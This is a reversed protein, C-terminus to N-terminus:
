QWRWGKRGVAGGWGDVILVGVEFQIENLQSLVFM